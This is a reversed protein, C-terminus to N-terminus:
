RVDDAVNIKPSSSTWLWNRKEQEAMTPPEVALTIVPDTPYDGLRMPQDAACLTDRQGLREDRDRVIDGSARDLQERKNRAYTGPTSRAGADGYPQQPLPELNL